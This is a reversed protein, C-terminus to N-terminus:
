TLAERLTDINRRMAAFYDDGAMAMDLTYLAAGTEAAIVKASADSGNTETFIAPLGHHEVLEILEILQHASTESGSEEEVAALIELDFSHAFYAFGDHFTIIERCSLDALQSKGYDLLDQLQALLSTLNREFTDAHEPYQAKLGTCINEAMVMANAPSLWIHSDHEHDHVHGDEAHAHEHDHCSELLAIGASADIRQKGDLVDEMFEELGAGNIVILDASEAAKVQRVNLSYDHLCSVSETVLRTVTLGTGQCLMSTFQYVPLTTAAIDATETQGACGSLMGILLVCILILSTTKM